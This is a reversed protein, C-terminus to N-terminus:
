LCPEEHTKPLYGNEGEEWEVDTSQVTNKM